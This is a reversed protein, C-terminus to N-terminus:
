KVLVVEAQICRMSKRGNGSFYPQPAASAVHQCQDLTKFREVLRIDGNSDASLLLWLMVTYM